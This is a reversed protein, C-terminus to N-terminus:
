INCCCFINLVNDFIQPIVQFVALLWQTSKEDRQRDMQRYRKGENTKHVKLLFFYLVVVYASNRRQGGPFAEHNGPVSADCSSVDCGSPEEGPPQCAATPLLLGQNGTQTQMCHSHVLPVRPGWPPLLLKRGLDLSVPVRFSASCLLSATQELKCPKEQAFVSGTWRKGKIQLDYLKLVNMGHSDNLLLFLLLLWLSLM